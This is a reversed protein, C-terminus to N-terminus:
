EDYPPFRVRYKPGKTVKIGPTEFNPPVANGEKTFDYTEYFELWYKRVDLGLYTVARSLDGILQGKFDWPYRQTIRIKDQLNDLSLFREDIKFFWGPEKGSGHDLLINYTYDFYPLNLLMLPQPHDPCHRGLLEILNKLYAQNRSTYEAVLLKGTISLMLDQYNVAHKTVWEVNTSGDENKIRKKKTDEILYEEKIAFELMQMEKKSLELVDGELMGILPLYAKKLPLKNIHYMTLVRGLVPNFGDPFKPRRKM